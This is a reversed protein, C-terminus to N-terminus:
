SEHEESFSRPWRLAVGSSCETALPYETERVVMEYRGPLRRPEIAKAKSNM